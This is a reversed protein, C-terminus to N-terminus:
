GSCHIKVGLGGSKMVQEIYKKMTKRHPIRKELDLAINQAIIRASLNPKPVEKINIELTDATRDIVVSDISAEKLKSELFKRIKVDAELKAAYNKGSFWKSNWTGTIGIRFIKPNVKQGM